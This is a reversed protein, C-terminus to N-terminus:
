SLIIRTIARSIPNVILPRRLILLILVLIINVGAMILYSAWLPLWFHLVQAVAVTIFLLAIGGLIICLILTIAATVLLILKEALTLRINEINLTLYAKIRELLRSRSPSQPESM